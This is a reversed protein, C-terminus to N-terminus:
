AGRRHLTVVAGVEETRAALHARHAALIQKVEREDIEGDKLAEAILQDVRQRQLSTQLSRQYLDLNDLDTPNDVKVFVGGYLACLYDPLFRTGTEQELLHLHEDTLPRHGACEYAHNDFKKVTMGLRSAACDRGGPYACIVASVAQRRTELPTRKM